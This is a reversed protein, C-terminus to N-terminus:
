VIKEDHAEAFIDSQNRKRLDMTILNGQGMSTVIFDMNKGTQRMFHLPEETEYTYSCGQLMRDWVKFSM